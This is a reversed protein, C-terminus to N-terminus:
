RGLRWLASRPLDEWVERTGDWQTAAPLATMFVYLFMVNYFGIPSHTARSLLCCVFAKLLPILTSDQLLAGKQTWLNWLSHGVGPGIRAASHHCLDSLLFVILWHVWEDLVCLSVTYRTLRVSSQETVEMTLLYNQSQSSGKGSLRAPWDFIAEQYVDLMYCSLTSTLLMSCYLTHLCSHVKCFNIVMSVPKRPFKEPRGVSDLRGSVSTSTNRINITQQTLFCETLASLSGLLM